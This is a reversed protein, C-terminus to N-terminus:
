STASLLYDIHESLETRSDLPHGIVEEIRGTDFSFAQSEVTSTALFKSSTKACIELAVDRWTVVERDVVLYTGGSGADLLERYVTALNRAGIFQRMEGESVNIAEGIRAARIFKNFRRDSKHPGGPFAPAGVVPGPRVVTTTIGFQERVANLFAEGSVKTAGYFDNTKTPSDENMKGVFPRHVATSSTYILHEIGAEAAAHFLHASARSDRMDLESNDEEPWVLANHILADHGALDSEYSERHELDGRISSVDNPLSSPDRALVTLEHGAGLLEKVLHSGM